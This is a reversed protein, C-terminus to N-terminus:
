RGAKEQWLLLKKKIEISLTFWAYYNYAIYLREAHILSDSLRVGYDGLIAILVKFEGCCSAYPAYGGLWGHSIAHGVVETNRMTQLSQSGCLPGFKSEALTILYFNGDM